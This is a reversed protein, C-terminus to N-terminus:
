QRFVLGTDLKCHIHGPLDTEALLGKEIHFLRILLRPAGTRERVAIQQESQREGCSSMQENLACRRLVRIDPTKM